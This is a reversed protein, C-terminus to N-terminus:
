ELRLISIGSSSAWYLWLEDFYKRFYGDLRFPNYSAIYSHVEEDVILPSILNCLLIKKGTYGDYHGNNLKNLKEGVIPTIQDFINIKFPNHSTDKKNRAHDWLYKYESSNNAIDVIEVALSDCICDPENKDPNGMRIFSIPQIIHKNYLAIFSKSIAREHDLKLKTNYGDSM